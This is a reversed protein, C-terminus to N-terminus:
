SKSALSRRRSHFYGVRGVFWLCTQLGVANVSIGLELTKQLFSIHNDYTDVSPSLAYSGHYLMPVTISCLFRSLAYFGHHGFSQLAGGPSMIKTLTTAV